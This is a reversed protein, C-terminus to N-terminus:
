SEHVIQINNRCYGTGVGSFCVGVGVGDGAFCCKAAQRVFVADEGIDVGLMIPAQIAGHLTTIPVLCLFEYELAM